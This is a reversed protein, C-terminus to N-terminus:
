KTTVFMSNNTAPYDVLGNSLLESPTTPIVGLVLHTHNKLLQVMVNLYALLLDGYALAHSAGSGLSVEPANVSVRSSAQITVSGGASDIVVRNSGGSDGVTITRASDDITLNHGGSSQLIIKQAGDTDEFRLTHGGPTLIVRNHRDTEPPAAGGNWLFGLVYPNDFDGNHFAVLAEDGEEPLFYMGRNAGSLGHAIPAWNSRYAEPLHPFELRVQSNPEDIERVFGTVVGPISERM